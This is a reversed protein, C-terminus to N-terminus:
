FENFTTSQLLKRLFIRLYENLFQDVCSKM